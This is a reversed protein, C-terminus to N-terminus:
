RGLDVEHDVGKAKRECEADGLAIPVVDHRRGLQNPLRLRTAQKPVFRVATTFKTSQEVIIV